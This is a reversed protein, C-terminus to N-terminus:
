KCCVIKAWGATPAGGRLCRRLVAGKSKMCSRSLRNLPASATLDSETVTVLSTCRRSIQAAQDDIKKLLAGEYKGGGLRCICLLPVFRYPLTQISQHAVLFPSGLHCNIKLSWFLVFPSCQSSFQGISLMLLSLRHVYNPRPTRNFLNSCQTFDPYIGCLQTKRPWQRLWAATQMASYM